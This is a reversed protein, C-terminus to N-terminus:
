KRRKLKLECCSVVKLGFLMDSNGILRKNQKIWLISNIYTFNCRKYEKEKTYGRKDFLKKYKKYYESFILISHRHKIPYAKVFLLILDYKTNFNVKTEFPM